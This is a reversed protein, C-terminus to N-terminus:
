RVRVFLPLSLLLCTFPRACMLRGEATAADPEHNGGGQAAAAHRTRTDQHGQKGAGGQSKADPECNGGGQAASGHRTRTAQHGEKGAGGQARSDACFTHTLTHAHMPTHLRSRSDAVSQQKLVHGDNQEDVDREREREACIKLCPYAKIVVARGCM